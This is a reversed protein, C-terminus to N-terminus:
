ADELLPFERAYDEPNAKAWEDFERGEARAAEREEQPVPGDYRLWLDNMCELYSRPRTLTDPM